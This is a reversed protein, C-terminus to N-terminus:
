DEVEAVMLSRMSKSFNSLIIDISTDKGVSFMADQLNDQLHYNAFFINLTVLKNILYDYFLTDNFKSSLSYNLEDISSIIRLLNSSRSVEESKNIQDLSYSKVDFLLLRLNEDVLAKIFQNLRHVRPIYTSCVKWVGDEDCELDCIKMGNLVKDDVNVILTALKYPVKEKQTTGIISKDESIFIECRTADISKLDVSSVEYILDDDDYAPYSILKRNIFGVFYSLKFIGANLYDMNIAIDLLSVSAGLICEYMELIGDRMFISQHELDVPRLKQGDRWEVM